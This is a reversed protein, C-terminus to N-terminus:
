TAKFVAIAGWMQDGGATTSYTSERGAGDTLILEGVVLGANAGVDVNTLITFGNTLAGGTITSTSSDSGFFVLALSDPITNATTSGSSQSTVNGVGSNAQANVDLSIDTTPMTYVGAWAQCLQAGVNAYTWTISTEGSGTAIKYAVSGSVNVSTYDTGVVTFGSPINFAGSDKDVACATVILAGAPPQVLPIVAGTTVVGTDQVSQDRSIALRNGTCLFPFM